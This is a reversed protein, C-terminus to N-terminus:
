DIKRQGLSLRPQDAYDRHCQVAQYDYEVLLRTLATQQEYGHELLLWGGAQLHNKATVLIHQLDDLGENGAALAGTPEFRLDGASLHPDNVKIYPPNSLIMHAQFDCAFGTLWDSVLFHVNSVNNIQANQRAIQLAALSHDTAILSCGPREKAIALAIAGSGTGLDLITWHAQRPIRILAQEVLLETEPRPILTDTTVRLTLSWFDRQGLIYAIPEGQKRRRILIEFAQRQAPSLIKDPWTRLWTRNQNLVSALLLETDLRASDGQTHKLIATATRIADNISLSM